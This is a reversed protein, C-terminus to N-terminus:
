TSLVYCRCAVIFVTVRKESTTRIVGRRGWDWRTCFGRGENGAGGGPDKSGEGGAEGRAAKERGQRCCWWNATAAKCFKGV